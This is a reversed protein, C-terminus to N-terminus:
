MLRQMEEVLYTIQMNQDDDFDITQLLRCVESFLFSATTVVKGNDLQTLDSNM